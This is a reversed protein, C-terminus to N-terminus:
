TGNKYVIVIGIMNDKLTTVHSNIAQNNKNREAIQRKTDLVHSANEKEENSM